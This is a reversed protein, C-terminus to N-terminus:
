LRELTKVIVDWIGELLDRQNADMVNRDPFKMMVFVSRDYPGDENFRLVNSALHQYGVPLSLVSEKEKRREHVRIAQEVESVAKKLDVEDASEARYAFLDNILAPIRVDKGIIVPIVFKGLARAAGIDAAMWQSSVADSSAGVSNETFLAVLGDAAQVAEWLSRRWEHGPVLFNIDWSVQHHHGLGQEFRRAIDVDKNNEILHIRAM